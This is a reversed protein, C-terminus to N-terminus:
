FTSDLLTDKISLNKEYHGNNSSSSCRERELVLMGSSLLVTLETLTDGRPSRETQTSPNPLTRSRSLWEMVM